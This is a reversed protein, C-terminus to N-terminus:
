LSGILSEIVGTDANPVTTLACKELVNRQQKKIGLVQM